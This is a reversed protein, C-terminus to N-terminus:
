DSEAISKQLIFKNPLLKIILILTVSVAILTFIESVVGITIAKAVSDGESVKSLARVIAQGVYAVFATLFITKISLELKLLKYYILGLCFSFIIKIFFGDIYFTSNQLNHGLFNVCLFISLGLLLPLTKM